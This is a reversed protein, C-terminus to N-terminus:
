DGMEFGTAEINFDLEVDCLEGLREALLNPDWTAKEALRNDAIMFARIQNETLHDLCITPVKQIGLLKCATLRGHGSILKLKRDVLFPVNFGFAGISCAVQQIQKESHIRPNKSDPQLEGIDRYVITLPPKAKGLRTSAANITPRQSAM